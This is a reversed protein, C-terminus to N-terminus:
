FISVTVAAVAALICVTLQLAADKNYDGMREKIFSITQEMIDFSPNDPYMTKISPESEAISAFSYRKESGWIM